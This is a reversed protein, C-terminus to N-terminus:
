GVPLGAGAGVAARGGPARGPRRFSLDGREVPLRAAAGVAAGLNGGKAALAWPNSSGFRVEAVEGWRSCGPWEDGNAKNAWALREVSTCFEKLQLRVKVEKPLRPHGSALVAALWPRGVQAIMTRATPDLRELVEKAFLDLHRQLMDLLPRSAKREAVFARWRAVVREAVDVTAPPPAALPRAV